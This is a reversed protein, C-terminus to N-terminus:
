QKIRKAGPRKAVTIDWDGRECGLGFQYVLYAHLRNLGPDREFLVGFKRHTYGSVEDKSIVKKGFLASMVQHRSVQRVAFDHEMAFRHLQIYLAGLQFISHNNTQQMSPAEMYMCLPLNINFDSQSFMFGQLANIIADVRYMCSVEELVDRVPETKVVHTRDSGSCM